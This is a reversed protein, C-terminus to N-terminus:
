NSASILQSRGDSITPIPVTSLTSVLSGVSVIGPSMPVWRGVMRGVIVVSSIAVVNDVVVTVGDEDVSCLLVGGAGGEVKMGVVRGVIARVPFTTTTLVM